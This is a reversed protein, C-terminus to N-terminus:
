LALRAMGNPLVTIHRVLPNAARSIAIDVIGNMPTLADAALTRSFTRGRPSYCMEIMTATTNAPKTVVAVSFGQAVMAAPNFTDVVRTNTGAWNTNLCTPPLNPTCNTLGAPPTAELVRFIGTGGNYSVLVAIGRGMARLRASRYLLAVNQAVQNARREKMRAAIQPVAIAALIGIIVVVIMLEILTFGRSRAAPRTKPSHTFHM